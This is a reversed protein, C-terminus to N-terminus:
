FEFNLHPINSAPWHNEKSFEHFVLLFSFLHCNSTSQRPDFRCSHQDTLRPTWALKYVSRQPREATSEHVSAVHLRHRKAASFFFFVHLQLQLRYELNGLHVHYDKPTWSFRFLFSVNKRMTEKMKRRNFSEVNRAEREPFLWVSFIENCLIEILVKSITIADYFSFLSKGNM